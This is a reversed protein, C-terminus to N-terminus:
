KKYPGKMKFSRAIKKFVPIYTTKNTSPTVGLIVCYGSTDFLLVQYITLPTAADKGEGKAMTEYGSLDGIKVPISQNVTIKTIAARKSLRLEAFTKQDSAVLKEAASLELIMFPINENKLPFHGDPTLIMSQGIVKAIQFPAVPKVTFKLADSPKTSRGFTAALIATRISEGQQETKAKPYTAMILTTAGSRNVALLWKKFLTGDISQEVNFLMAEHGNVRAPAKNLLRLGQTRMRKPDSFGAIVDGYTSPMESIIISAETAENVFGPFRDSIIFGNPPTLIVSTGPVQEALVPFILLICFLAIIGSKMM